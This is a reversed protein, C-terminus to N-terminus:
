GDRDRRVWSSDGAVDEVAGDARAWGDFGVGLHAVDTWGLERLRDAALASRMGGACFVVTRSDPDPTDRAYPSAPDLWFELMGRPVSRAGPITGRTLRERIDRIDVLVVEGDALEGALGDVTVEEVRGRAEAVLDLITRRAAM